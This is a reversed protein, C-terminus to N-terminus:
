YTQVHVAAVAQNGDEPKDVHAGVEVDGTCSNQLCEEADSRTTLCSLNDGLCLLLLPQERRRVM